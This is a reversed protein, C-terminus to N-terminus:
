DKASVLLLQSVDPFLNGSFMLQNIDSTEVTGGGGGQNVTITAKTVVDIWYFANTALNQDYLGLVKTSANFWFAGLLPNAPPSSSVTVSATGGKLTSYLSM